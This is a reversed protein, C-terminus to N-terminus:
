SRARRTSVYVAFLSLFLAAASFGVGYAVFADVVDDRWRTTARFGSFHSLGVLLPLGFTLLLALRVPEIYFGLQWMEMTMLQPLAFVLAGGFARALGRWFHPQASKGQAHQAAQKESM